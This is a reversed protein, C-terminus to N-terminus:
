LQKEQNLFVIFASRNKIKSMHKWCENKQCYERLQNLHLKTYEVAQKKYEQKSLLRRYSEGEGFM